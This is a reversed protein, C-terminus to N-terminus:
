SVLNPRRPPKQLSIRAKSHSVKRLALTDIAVLSLKAAMARPRPPMAASSTKTTREAGRM